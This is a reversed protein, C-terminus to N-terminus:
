TQSLASAPAGATVPAAGRGGIAVYALYTLLYTGGVVASATALSVLTPAAARQIALAAAVLAAPVGLALPAAIAHRWVAIPSLGLMRAPVLQLVWFSTALHAVLTGAAVGALGFSRVLVLSLALNLVANAMEAYMLGHNRGAGQLFTVAPTGIAHLVHMALLVALVSGGAFMGPGAWVTVFPGAFAALSIGVPVAILVSLRVVRLYTARTRGEHGADCTASAFRPFLAMSVSAFLYTALFCLRFTLEYKAVAAAGLAVGIVIADTYNVIRNAVALVLTRLSYRWVGALAAKEIRAASFVVDRCGARLCMANAALTTLTGALTAAAVGDIGAGHRLLWVTAAAMVAQGLVTAGKSADLRNHGYNVNAVFLTLLLAAVNAGTMLAAATVEMQLPAPVDFVRVVLPAALVTAALIVAATGAFVAAATSLFASLSDATGTARHVATYRAVATSLGLDSLLLYGGLANLIVWYGYAAAGVADLIIPTLFVFVAASSVLHGYAALVAQAERRRALVVATRAASVWAAPVISM